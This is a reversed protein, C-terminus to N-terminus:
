PEFDPDNTGRRIEANLLDIDEPDFMGNRNFDGTFSYPSFSWHDVLADVQAAELKSTTLGVIVEDQVKGSYDLTALTVPPVDDDGSLGAFFNKVSSCGSAAVILSGFIFVRILYSM